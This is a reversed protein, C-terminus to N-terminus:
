NTKKEIPATFAKDSLIVERCPSKRFGLKSRQEIFALEDFSQKQEEALQKAVFLYNEYIAGAFSMLIHYAARAKDVVELLNCEGGIVEFYIDSKSFVKEVAARQELISPSRSIFVISKDDENVEEILKFLTDATNPRRNNVVGTDIIVLELNSSIYPKVFREYMDLMMQTEFLEAGYKSNLRAFYSDSGDIRPTLLRHGTLLYIRKKILLNNSRIKRILYRYRRFIESKNAGFIAAADYTTAEPNIEECLGITECIKFVQSENDIIWEPIMLDWRENERAFFFQQTYYVLNNLCKIYDCSEFKLIIEARSLKPHHHQIALILLQEINQAFHNSKFGYFELIKQLNKM